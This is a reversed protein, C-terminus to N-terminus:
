ALVLPAESTCSKINMSFGGRRSFNFKPTHTYKFFTRFPRKRPRRLGTGWREHTIPNPWQDFCIYWQLKLCAIYSM